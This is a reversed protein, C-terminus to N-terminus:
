FSLSLPFLLSNHCVYRMFVCDIEDTDQFMTENMLGVNVSQGVDCINESNPTSRSVEIRFQDGGGEFTIKEGPILDQMALQASQTVVSKIEYAYEKIMNSESKNATNTVNTGNLNTRNTSSIVSKFQELVKSSAVKQYCFYVCLQIKTKIKSNKKNYIVCICVCVCM